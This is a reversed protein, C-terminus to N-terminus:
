DQPQSRHKWDAVHGFSSGIVKAICDSVGQVPDSEEFQPFRYSKGEVDVSLNMRTPLIELYVERSVVPFGNSIQLELFICPGCASWM